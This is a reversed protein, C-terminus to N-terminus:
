PVDAIDFGIFDILPQPLVDGSEHQRAATTPSPSAFIADLRDQRNALGIPEAGTLASGALSELRSVFARSAPKIALHSEVLVRVPAPLGGAVYRALLVDLTEFNDPAM